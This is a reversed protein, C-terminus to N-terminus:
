LYPVHHFLGIYEFEEAWLLSGAVAFALQLLGNYIVQLGEQQFEFAAEAEFGPLLPQGKIILVQVHIQHKIVPDQLAMDQNIQLDPRERM